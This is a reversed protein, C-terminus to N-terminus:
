CGLLGDIIWGEDRRDWEPPDEECRRKRPYLATAFVLDAAIGLLQNPSRYIQSLATMMEDM